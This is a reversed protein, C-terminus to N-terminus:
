ASPRLSLAVSALEVSTLDAAIFKRTPMHSTDVPPAISTMGSPPPPTPISGHLDGYHESLGGLFAGGMSRVENAVARLLRDGTRQGRIRPTIFQGLLLGGRRGTIVDYTKEWAAFGCLHGDAQEAVFFELVSGFGDGLLAEATVDAEREFVELAYARILEVVTHADSPEARRVHITHPTPPAESEM